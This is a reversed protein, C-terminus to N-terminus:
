KQTLNKRRGKLGVLRGRENQGGNHFPHLPYITISSSIKHTTFNMAAMCVLMPRTAPVRRHPVLTMHIIKVATMQVMRVLVMHIFMHNRHRRVIWVLASSVHTVVLLPMNMSGAASMFRDRMPIMNIVKHLAMEMMRMTIM